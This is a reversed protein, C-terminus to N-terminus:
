QLRTTVTTSLAQLVQHTIPLLEKVQLYYYEHEQVKKGITAASLLCHPRPPTYRDHYLSGEQHIVGGEIIPLHTGMSSYATDVMKQLRMYSNSFWTTICGAHISEVTCRYFNLLANPSTGFVKTSIFTNAKKTQKEALYLFASCISVRPLIILVLVQLLVLKSKM